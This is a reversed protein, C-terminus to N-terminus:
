SLSILNSLILESQTLLCITNSVKENVFKVSQMSHMEKYTRKVRDFLVNEKEYNRFDKKTKMQFEDPQNM